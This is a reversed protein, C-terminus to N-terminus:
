CNKSFTTGTGVDVSIYGWIERDFSIYLFLSEKDTQKELSTQSTQLFLKNGAHYQVTSMTKRASKCWAGHICM